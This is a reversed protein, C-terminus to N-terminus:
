LITDEISYGRKKLEQKYFALFVAENIERRRRENEEKTKPLCSTNVIVNPLDPFKYQNEGVKIMGAPMKLEIPTEKKENEEEVTFREKEFDSM